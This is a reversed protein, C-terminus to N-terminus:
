SVDYANYSGASMQPGQGHGDFCGAGWSDLSYKLLLIILRFLSIISECWKTDSSPSIYLALVVFCPKVSHGAKHEKTACRIEYSWRDPVYLAM